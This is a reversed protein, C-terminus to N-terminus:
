SLSKPKGMKFDVVEGKVSVQIPGATSELTQVKLEQPTIQVDLYRFRYPQRGQDHGGSYRYYNITQTIMPWKNTLAVAARFFFSVGTPTQGAEKM